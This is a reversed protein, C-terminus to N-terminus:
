LDPSTDPLHFQQIISRYRTVIDALAGQASRRQEDAALLHGIVQDFGEQAQLLHLNAFQLNVLGPSNRTTGASTAELRRLRREIDDLRNAEAHTERPRAPSGNRNLYQDISAVNVLWVDTRHGRATRKGRLEARALLNRVTQASCGGLRNAADAVQCWQRDNDEHPTEIPPVPMGM